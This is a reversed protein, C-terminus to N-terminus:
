LVIGTNPKLTVRKVSPTSQFLMTTYHKVWKIGDGEECLTHISITLIQQTTNRNRNDGEECLTHISIVNNYLTEGVKDTVRKVSPTSQFQQRQINVQQKLTDGEECLTHISILM